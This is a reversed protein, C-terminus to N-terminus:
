LSGIMAERVLTAVFVVAPFPSMRSKKGPFFFLLIDGKGKGRVSGVGTPSLPERSRDRSQGGGAFRSCDPTDFWGCRIEIGTLVM